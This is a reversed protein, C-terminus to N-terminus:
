DNFCFYYYIKITNLSLTASNSEDDLKAGFKTVDVIADTAVLRTGEAGCSLFVLAPALTLPLAMSSSSHAM